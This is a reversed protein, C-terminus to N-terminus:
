DLSCGDPPAFWRHRRKAIARYVADRVFSPVLLAVLAPARWWWRLYLGARLAAGSLVYARGGRFLVVTDAGSLASPLTALLSRGEESQQGLFRLSGAKVLRPKLFLAARTCLGCEADLVLVDVSEM